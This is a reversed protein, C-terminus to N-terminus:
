KITNKSSMFLYILVNINLETCRMRLDSQNPVRRENNAQTKENTKRM